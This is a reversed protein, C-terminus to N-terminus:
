PQEICYLRASNDCALTCLESWGGDIRGAHGVGGQINNVAASWYSCDGDNSLQGSPTTNTWVLGQANSCDQAGGAVTDGYETVNIPVDLNGDILDSWNNAVLQKDVRIFPLKSAVFTTGPDGDPDSIWARYGGANPLAAATAREKCREDAGSTSGVDAKVKLSTVFVMFAKRQCLGNCTDNEDRNGDDCEEGLSVVGDGCSNQCDTCGDGDIQNGDDCPEVGAEVFGDGCVALKCGTTCADTDDLDGDDCEEQGEQVWADGCVAHKCAPTCAETEGNGPGLDCEEGAGLQVAGDGCAAAQCQSTCEDTSDRDGDDCVEPEQVVGDGCQSSTCDNRCADGEIQNGDDCSEVGVHLKGDGCVAQECALTCAKDDGNDVGADCQEGAGPEGDGCAALKCLSSCADDPQGGSDCQEPPTVVGDGCGSSRCMNSCEDGDERDGDDCGETIAVYGDGCENKTCDEKCISGNQGNNDEGYDCQEGADLHADGCRDSAGETPEVDATSGSSGTISSSPAGSPDFFCAQAAASLLLSCPYTFRM